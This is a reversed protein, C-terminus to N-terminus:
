PLQKLDQALATLEDILPQLDLSPPPAVPTAVTDVTSTAPSRGGLRELLAQLTAETECGRQEWEQLLGALDQDQLRKFTAQARQPDLVLDPLSQGAGLGIRLAHQLPALPNTDM